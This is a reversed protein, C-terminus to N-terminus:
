SVNIMGVKCFVGPGYRRLHSQEPKFLCELVRKAGGLMISELSAAESMIGKWVETGWQLSTCLVSLLLMFCAGLNIYHNSIISNQIILSRVM